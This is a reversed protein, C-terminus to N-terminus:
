EAAEASASNCSSVERALDLQNDIDHLEADAFGLSSKGDADTVAMRNRGTEIARRVNREMAAQVKPDDAASALAKPKLAKELAVVNADSRRVTAGLVDGTSPPSQGFLDDGRGRQELMDRAFTDLNDTMDSKSLFREM